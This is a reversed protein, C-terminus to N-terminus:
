KLLLMKKNTVSNNSTLRYYYVGSSLQSANFNVKYNGASKVGDVLRAVEKGLADYVCLTVNSQTPISFSITTAPNFPNPYNQSLNFSAATGPEREVYSPGSLSNESTGTVRALAVYLSQGDALILHSATTDPTITNLTDVVLTTHSVTQTMGVWNAREDVSYAVRLNTNGSLVGDNTGYTPAFDNFSMQTTSTTGKNYTIKYYRLSSVKDIDSTLISNNLAAAGEIDAVTVWHWGGATTQGATDKSTVTIPRYGKSDGVPFIKTTNSLATGYNGIVYSKSSAGLMNTADQKQHVLTNSGTEVVGEVFTLINQTVPDASSGGLIYVTNALIVKAGGTKNITVANFANGNVSFTSGSITTNKSGQFVFNLVGLTLKSVSGSRLNFGANALGNVTFDGDLYIVHALNKGATSGQPILSGGANVVINGSVKLTCASVKSTNLTGSLGGGVTLNTCACNSSDLSVIAGDPIVVNDASTPVVGGVWTTTAAWPIGKGTTVATITGQSYVATTMLVLIYFLFTATTKM